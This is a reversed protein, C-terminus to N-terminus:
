PCSHLSSSSISYKAIDSDTMNRSVPVQVPSSPMNVAKFGWGDEQGWGTNRLLLAVLSHLDVTDLHQKFIETRIRKNACLGDETRLWRELETFSISRLASYVYRRANVQIIFINGVSM